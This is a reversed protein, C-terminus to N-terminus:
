SRHSTPSKFSSISHNVGKVSNCRRMSASRSRSRREVKPKHCHVKAWTDCNTLFLNDKLGKQHSHRVEEIHSKRHYDVLNSQSIIKQINRRPPQKNGSAPRTLRKKSAVREAREKKKQKPEEKPPSKRKPSPKKRHVVEKTQFKTKLRAGGMANALVAYMHHQTGFNNEVLQTGIRFEHIANDFKGMKEFAQGTALKALIKLNVQGQFQDILNNYYDEM